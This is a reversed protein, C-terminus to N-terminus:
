KKEQAEATGAPGPGAGALATVTVRTAGEPPDFRFAQDTAKASLDWKRITV